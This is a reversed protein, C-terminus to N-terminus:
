QVRKWGGPVKQYPVGNMTKTIIQQSANAATSGFRSLDLGNGKAIPAAAKSQLYNVLAERKQQITHESDGPAPTINKFTNDMAAQRVTGELDAFTPQMAQHLAYVSGPTRVFGAGTRMVTNENAADEFGKLISQGMRNTNQAAQIEGYVKNQQEPNKVLHPVLQAPDVNLMGTKEPSASLALRLNNESKQRQIDILLPALRLQAEAGGAQAQYGKIKAETATLLQNRTMLNAQLADHTAERNMKWLNMSKSQDNKQADIDADIARHINEAALNPGGATASGAGGLIMGIGAAIKAGTSKDNWYRDPNIKASAFQKQFADDASQRQKLLDDISTIQGPAYVPNPGRGQADVPGVAAKPGDTKDAYDKWAAAGKQAAQTEAAGANKIAREESELAKPSVTSINLASSATPANTEMPATVSPAVQAGPMAAVQDATVPGVSALQAGEIPAQPVTGYPANEAQEQPILNDYPIDEGVPQVGGGEKFKQVPLNELQKRQLASVAHHAIMMKHGDPHEFTSSNKDGAVKKMKSLNLSMPKM